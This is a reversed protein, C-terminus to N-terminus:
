GVQIIPTAPNEPLDKRVGRLSIIRDTYIQWHYGSFINAAVECFETPTYARLHPLGCPKRWEKPAPDYCFHPTSLHIYEPFEGCHRLCETALDRPEPLHEIIELAVFIQPADPVKPVRYNTLLPHAMKQTNEDVAVDWYTFNYGLQKLGLPIWYEGPGVDVIHPMKGNSNLRKVEEEVLRGRLNYRLNAIATTEDVNSDLGSTLYAHTTCLAKLIDTRLKELEPDLNARYYAPVNDLVLLAREVEDNNILEEVYQKCLEVNFM